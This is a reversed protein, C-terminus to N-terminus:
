ERRGTSRARKFFYAPYTQTVMPKPGHLEPGREENKYVYPMVSVLEWGQQAAMAIENPEVQKYMAPTVERPFLAKVELGPGGPVETLRFDRQALLIAALAMILLAPALIRKM